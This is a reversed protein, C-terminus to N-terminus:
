PDLRYHEDDVEAVVVMVRYQDDVKSISPVKGPNSDLAELLESLNRRSLALQVTSESAELIRM